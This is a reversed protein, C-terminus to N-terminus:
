GPKFGSEPLFFRGGASAIARCRGFGFSHYVPVGIYESISHDVQMLGNLRTVVDALNQHTLLVGKAQGETGSTFSVIATSNSTSPQFEREMWASGSKPTLVREVKAANIRDHDEGYKLPVAVEGAELCHFMAEVYGTSNVSVVGIRTSSQKLIGEAVM